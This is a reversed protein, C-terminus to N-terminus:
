YIQKEKNFLILDIKLCDQGLGFYNFSFWFQYLSVLSKKEVHGLPNPNLHWASIFNLLTSFSSIAKLPLWPFFLASTLAKPLVSSFLLVGAFIVRAPFLWLIVLKLKDIIFKM